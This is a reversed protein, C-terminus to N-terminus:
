GGFGGGLKYLAERAERIDLGLEPYQAEEAMQILKELTPRDNDKVASRLQERLTDPSLDKGSVDIDFSLNKITFLELPQIPM